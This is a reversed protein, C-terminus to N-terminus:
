NIVLVGDEVLDVFCLVDHVYHFLKRHLTGVELGLFM